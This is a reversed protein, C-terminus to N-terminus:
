YICNRIIKDINDNADNNNQLRNQQSGLLISELLTWTELDFVM